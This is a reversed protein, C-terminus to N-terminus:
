FWGGETRPNPFRPELDLSAQAHDFLFSTASAGVVVTGAGGAVIVVNAIVPVAVIVCGTETRM